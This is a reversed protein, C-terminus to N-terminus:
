QASADAPAGLIAALSVGTIQAIRYATKRGCGEGNVVRSITAASTGALDALANQDKGNDACWALVPHISPTTDTVQTGVFDLPKCM